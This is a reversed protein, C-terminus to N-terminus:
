PMTLTNGSWRSLVAGRSALLAPFAPSLLFALEAERSASVDDVARLEADVHGPHCMVLHRPGPAVLYAGFDAALPRAADFASYGSFGKNTEFGAALARSAFGLALAAVQLAKAAEVRRALISAIRDSSDRLWIKGAWGRRSLDEILWRRVGPLVQVHQHGDVFDPPRGMEAVFAEVQRAIEARVEAEPLRSTLARGILQTLAPFAGDPALTPMPGLPAGATLNLHLGLDARGAFASLERAARPWSPRNTMACTATLRGADLCQLIGASVGPALAYDDACLMVRYTQM